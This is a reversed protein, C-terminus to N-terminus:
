AVDELLKRGGREDLLDRAAERGADVADSAAARARLVVRGDLSALMVQIEVDADGAEALAGCPLNCGGGLEALFAREATVARHLAADDIAAVHQRTRDDDVRCEVALAGQAVQPLM